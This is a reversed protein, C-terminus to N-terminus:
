RRKRRNKLEAVRLRNQSAQIMSQARDLSVQDKADKVMAQAKELAAQAEQENIDDSHDAEDALVRVRHSTIEVVGGNTAYHELQDDTNSKLRRVSIVGSDALSVLPMHEPFIAIQGDPTPLIIEYVDESMKVGTLTVLEFTIM